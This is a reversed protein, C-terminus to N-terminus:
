RLLTVHGIYKHETRERTAEETVIKWVYIDQKVIEDSGLERATGDWPDNLNHSEFILDGWRDFIYLVFREPNIGIGKPPFFDNEGDGNPTFSNPIWLSYENDIYIYLTTDDECGNLTTVQLNVPYVGTDSPFTFQPNINQSSDLIGNNLNYFTWDWFTIQGSSQNTFSVLTNVVTPNEPTYTFNAIPNPNVSVLSAPSVPTVCGESTFITLDVVYNDPSAYVYPFTGCDDIYTGDGMDWLCSIANPTLNTFNVTDGECIIASLPTYVPTPVQFFTVTVSDTDAPSCGDNTVVSYYVTDPYNGPPYDSNNPGQQGNSWTFTYPPGDGGMAFASLDILQGKCITVDSFATVDLPPFIDICVTQPASQCGNLDTATVTYCTPVTPNVVQFNGSFGNDWAYTYFGVGGSANASIVTDAGLCITLPPSVSDTVPLPQSVDVSAVVPCQNADTATVIYAGACLGTANQSTQYGTNNDWQFSFTGAGGFANATASGDCSGSCLTQVSTTVVFGQPPQTITFNTDKTCGNADTVLLNYTGNCLKGASATNQGTGVPPSGGTPTWSYYYGGTGGSPIVVAYGNCSDYCTAPQSLFSNVSLPTPQTVIIQASDACGMSNQVIGSYTGACVTNFINGAQFSAGNDISFQTGGSANLIISGDCDGYCSINTVTSSDITIDSVSVTVTDTDGCASNILYTILHNGTGSVSADFTGSSSNTIGNGSWTGGPSVATLIVAPSTACYPGSPSITADLSQNVLVNETDSASCGSVTINYSITFTGAGSVSPDFSNGSVGTGSWTGGIDAATLTVPSGSTCLSAVPNITADPVANVVISVTDTDGCSGSITYTIVHSGVGASSPSFANGSIGTGSFTGGSTAATLTVPPDNDCFPGAQTITADANPAGDNITVSTVSPCNNNDNVTVSYNGASLGTASGGSASGNSWSYTYPTNGGSASVTASGDSGGACTVNTSSTTLTVSTQSNVAVTITNQCGANDNVTVTYNGATLGTATSSTQVPTTNWQYTYPTTGSSANVTATGNSGGNCAVATSSTTLTLSPTTGITFTSDSTCNNVDNVTVTYSGASLGTATATTQAPTTSWLYTYPSNGGNPSATISGNSSGCGPSVSSFSIVPGETITINVPPITATTGCISYSGTITAIEAGESIGDSMAPVTLNITSQGTGFTVSNTLTYDTGNTATGSFSLNVVLSTSLDGGRTIQIAGNLCGEGATDATAIIDVSTGPCNLGSQELFVGSDYIADNADAIVLKLHYTQCTSVPVSAVLPVTFGNYAITSGSQNNVYFATNNLGPDGPGGCGGAQGNIGVAGGNVTNIAVAINTGPLLAINKATYTGGLPNPGSIFFGFADNYQSCVFDPYEESAFVYNLQLTDCIPIVDFELICTNFTAQPEIAVLDPDGGSTANNFDLQTSASGPVQTVNGTTLLVGNNLGLNSSGSFTGYSETPCNLTANNVIVGPGVIASAITQATGGQTVTIQAFGESFFFYLLFFALASFYRLTLPLLYFSFRTANCKKM